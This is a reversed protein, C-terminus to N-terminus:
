TELAKFDDDLVLASLAICFDDTAKMKKTDKGRGEKEKAMNAAFDAINLCNTCTCWMPKPHCNNTCWHFPRNHAQLTEKGEKNEFRWQRFRLGLGKEMDRTKPKPMPNVRATEMVKKLQELNTMMALSKTDKSAPKKQSTSGEWESAAKRNNYLKLAFDLLDKYSSYTALSDGTLWETEKAKVVKLFEEDNAM